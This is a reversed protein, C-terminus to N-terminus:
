LLYKKRIRSDGLRVRSCKSARAAARRRSRSRTARAIGILARAIPSNISVLGQRSTRKTTASSRTADGAPRWGGARARGDRRVGGQRHGRAIGPRHGARERTAARDGQHPGRHIGAARARRPVRREGVSRRALAGRRDRPHDAPRDEAKLKSCSTACSRRARCRSRREEHQRGARQHLDQLRNVDDDEPPGARRLDRPGGAVTTYYTM